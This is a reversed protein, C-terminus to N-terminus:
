IIFSKRRLENVLHIYYHDIKENCSFSFAVQNLADEQEATLDSPRNFVAFDHQEKTATCLFGSGLKECSTIFNEKKRKKRENYAEAYDVDTQMKIAFERRQSKSPKWKM